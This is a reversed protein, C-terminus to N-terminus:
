ASRKRVLYGQVANRNPCYAFATHACPHRADLDRDCLDGLTGACKECRRIHERIEAVSHAALYEGPAIGHRVLMRPMRLGTLRLRLVARVLASERDSDLLAAVALVLVCAGFAFLLTVVFPTASVAVGGTAPFM